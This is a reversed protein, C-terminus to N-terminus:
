HGLRPWVGATRIRGVVGPIIHGDAIRRDRWAVGHMAWPLVVEIFLDPRGRPALVRAADVDEHRVTRCAEDGIRYVAVNPLRQGRNGVTIGRGSWELSGSPSCQYADQCGAGARM